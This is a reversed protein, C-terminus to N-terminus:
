MVYDKLDRQIRAVKSSNGIGLFKITQKLWPFFQLWAAQNAEAITEKLVRTTMERNPDDYQLRKGFVMSSIINSVSSALLHHIVFPKEVNKKLHQLLEEVEEQFFSSHLKTYNIHVIVKKKRREHLLM